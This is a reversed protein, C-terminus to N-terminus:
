HIIFSRGAGCQINELKIEISKIIGGGYNMGPDMMDM